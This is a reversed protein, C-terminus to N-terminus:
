IQIPKIIVDRGGVSVVVDRTSLGEEDFIADVTQAVLGPDMVEGEVIADGGLPRAILREIVPEGSSHDVVAVKVFGSGIDLGM